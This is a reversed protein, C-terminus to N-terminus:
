ILRVILQVEKHFPGPKMKPSAPSWPGMEYDQWETALEVMAVYGWLWDFDIIEKYNGSFLLHGGIIALKNFCSNQSVHTIPGVEKWTLMQFSQPVYNTFNQSGAQKHNGQTTM